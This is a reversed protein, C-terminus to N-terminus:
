VGAFVVCSLLRIGGHLTAIGLLCQARRGRCGIM